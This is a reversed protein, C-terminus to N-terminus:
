EGIYFLKGNEDPYGNMEINFIREDELKYAFNMAGPTGARPIVFDESRDDAAKAVPHLRLEKALSLLDISTGLTVDVRKSTPETGGTLTAGSLTVKVGATGAALTFANGETGKMGDTGYVLAAGYKVTVIAGAVSYTAAALAPVTSANLKAALNAATAAATAGIAVELEGAPAAKFTITKGNVVITDNAVLNTTVTITGTAVAGGASVLTAGPMTAVLNDLTTEALPVKVAIDRGMLYENVPTKGFQDINVKHTETKVTVEVGGKTFGLDVGGYIAQCVGLKVNKTNSKM